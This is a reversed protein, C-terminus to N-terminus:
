MFLISDILRDDFFSNGMGIGWIEGRSLNTDDEDTYECNRLEFNYLMVPCITAFDERTFYGSLGIKTM